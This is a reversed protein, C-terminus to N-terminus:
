ESKQKEKQEAILQKAFQVLMPQPLELAALKWELGSLSFTARFQEERPKDPPLRVYM